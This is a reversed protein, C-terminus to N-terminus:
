PADGESIMESFAEIRTRVQGLNEDDDISFELQLSQIGKEKFRKMLFPFEFYEYECFKEGLFVIGRAGREQILTELVKIRHDSSGLLTTCPHHNYYFDVYYDPASGGDEPTYAYTRALSAIDNGVVRLGSQEMIDSVGSPPPMIGSIIVGAGPADANKLAPRKDAESVVAEMKEIQDEVSRLCNGQMLGAFKGFGIGGQAVARELQRALARARRYSSVSQEFRADSFSVGFTQELRGILTQIEDRLYQRADTQELSPMPIHANLLPLARGEEELGSRLIEPLNRLTDCANYMFMGDLVAGADSLVFEALHRGVSCVFNQIHRDSRATGDLFPKMGWMVLPELGMSHFLEVPPYLPFCGLLRRGDKKLPKLRDILPKM